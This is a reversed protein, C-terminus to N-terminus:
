FGGLLVLRMFCVHLGGNKPSTPVLFHDGNKQKPVRLAMKQWMFVPVKQNKEMKTSSISDCRFITM